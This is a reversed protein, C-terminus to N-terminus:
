FNGQKHRQRVWLYFVDIRDCTAFVIRDRRKKTAILSAPIRSLKPEQYIITSAGLRVLPDHEIGLTPSAFRDWPRPTLHVLRVIAQHCLRDTTLRGPASRFFFRDLRGTGRKKEASESRWSAIVIFAM